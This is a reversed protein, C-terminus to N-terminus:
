ISATARRFATSQCRLLSVCGPTKDGKAPRSCLPPTLINAGMQAARLKLQDLANDRGAKSTAQPDQVSDRQCYIGDIDGLNEYSGTALQRQPLIRMQRYKELTDADAEYFDIVELPAACAGLCAGALVCFRRVYIM